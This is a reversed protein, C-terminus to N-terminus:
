GCVTLRCMREIRSARGATNERALEAEVDGIELAPRQTAILLDTRADGFAFNVKQDEEPVWQFRLGM